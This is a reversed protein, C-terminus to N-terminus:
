KNVVIKRFSMSKENYSVFEGNTRNYILKPYIMEKFGFKDYIKKYKFCYEDYKNEPICVKNNSIKIFGLVIILFESYVEKKREIENINGYKIIYLNLINKIHPPLYKNCYNFASENINEKVAIINGNADIWGNNIM